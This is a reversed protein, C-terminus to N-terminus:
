SNGGAVYVVNWDVWFELCWLIQLYSKKCICSILNCHPWAPNIHIWHSSDRYPPGTFVCIVCLSSWTVVSASESASSRCSLSHWPPSRPPSPPCHWVPRWFFGVPLMQVLSFQNSNCDFLLYNNTVTAKPFFNCMNFIVMYFLLFKKTLNFPNKGSEVIMLVFMFLYIHVDIHTHTHVCAHACVCTTSTWTM